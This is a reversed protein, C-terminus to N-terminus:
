GRPPARSPHAAAIRQAVLALQAATRAATRSSIAKLTASSRPLAARAQSLEQCSRCHAGAPSGDGDHALAGSCPAGVPAEVYAPAHDAGHDAHAHVATAFSAASALALLSAVVRRWRPEEGRSVGDARM